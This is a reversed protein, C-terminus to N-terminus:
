RFCSMVEKSFLRIGDTSPLDLFWLVFENVGIELFKQIRKIIQDPKGILNIEEFEEWTMKEPMGHKQRADTSFFLYSPYNPNHTNIEKKKERIEDDTRGILVHADWSVKLKDFSRNLSLCANKIGDLKVRVSELSGLTNVGDAFQAIINFMKKGGRLTGIWIPPHPNQLPKPNCVANEIVYYKGKFFPNTEVFMKKLVEIYEILQEIRTSLSPLTIGYRAAEEENWGAGLGLDLRGGSIVDLTSAMKALIAPHRFAYCLVKSGIRIKSTIAALYSMVTWSELIRLENGLMLHDA